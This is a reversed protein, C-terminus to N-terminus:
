IKIKRGLMKRELMPLKTRGGLTYSNRREHILAEFNSYTEVDLELTFYFFLTCVLLVTPMLWYHILPLIQFCRITAVNCVVFIAFGTSILIVTLLAIPDHLIQVSINVVSHWYTFMYYEQLMLKSVTLLGTNRPIM